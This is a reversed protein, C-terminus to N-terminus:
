GANKKWCDVSSYDNKNFQNSQNFHLHRSLNTLDKKTTIDLRSSENGQTDHADKLIRSTSVENSLKVTLKQVDSKSIRLHKGAFDHGLHSKYFTAKFGGYTKVLEIRAPCMVGSRCSGQAKLQRKRKIAAQKEHFGSRNCDYISKEEM